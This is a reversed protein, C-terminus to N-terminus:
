DSLGGTGEEFRSQVIHDALYGTPVQRLEMSNVLFQTGAHLTYALHHGDTAVELFGDLLAQTHYPLTHVTKHFVLFQLNGINIGGQTFRSVLSNENDRFRHMQRLVINLADVFKGLNVLPEQILQLVDDINIFLQLTLM